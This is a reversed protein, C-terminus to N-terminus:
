LEALRAFSFKSIPDGTVTLANGNVEVKSNGYLRRFMSAAKEADEESDFTETISVGAERTPPNNVVAYLSIGVIMTPSTWQWLIIAEVLQAPVSQFIIANAEVEIANEVISALASLTGDKDVPYQANIVKVIEFGEFESGSHRGVLVAKMATEKFYRSANPMQHRTM